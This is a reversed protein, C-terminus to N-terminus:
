RTAIKTSGASPMPWPRCMRSKTTRCGINHEYGNVFIANPDAKMAERVLALDDAWLDMSGSDLNFDEPFIAEANWSRGAKWVAIWAIGDAAEERINRACNRLSAM